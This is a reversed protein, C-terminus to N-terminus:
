TQFREVTKRLQQSLAGLNVAATDLQAIGQANQESAKRINQLAITVQEFGIQQQNTAAIIQQFARVSEQTADATQRIVQEAAEAQSRGSDVRKVAEETLMVSSHIGKQIEGLITRVQVTAEKSQDALNKLESAVVGFRSGEDGVSAAEIAANLALLNSREALDNVTAIIEGIAQTKESLSVINEAVVEVQERIADMTRSTNQVAQMGSATATSSVQAASGVARSREAIQAGSQAVEDMTTSTEQVSELQETLSAAQQQTSASIQTTAANLNEAASQSQRTLDRLSDVMGNFSRVLDGIEDGSAVNLQQQRLDGKEVRQVADLLQRVPGTVGRTLVLATVIVLLTSIVVGIGLTNRATEVSLDADRKRATLVEQEETEMDGIAKRLADMTKKGEDSLVLKLAGDFGQSRRLDIAQQLEALKATVLTGVQDLARQQTPNDQTLSRQKTLDNQMTDRGTNYPELYRDAGTILFGRQGTECDKASSLVEDLTRLVEQSHAASTATDTLRNMSWSAVASLAILIILIVGFGAALRTGISLRM